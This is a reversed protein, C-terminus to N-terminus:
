GNERRVLNTRRFSVVPRGAEDRGETHWTVIGFGPRSTSARASIVTSHATVTDGVHVAEHYTLDDVGLFYGGIESLDEVSLGFTTLFVLFPNVPKREHGAQKALMSNFYIPNYHLSAASFLVVDSETFTRGWHHDFREGENVHEFGRGRRWIRADKLESPLKETWEVLSSPDSM